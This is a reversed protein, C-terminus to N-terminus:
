GYLLDIMIIYFFCPAILSEANIGGTQSGQKKM